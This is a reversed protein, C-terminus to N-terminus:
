LDKWTMSRKKKKDRNRVEAHLSYKLKDWCSFVRTSVQRKILECNTHSFMYMQRHTHAGQRTM